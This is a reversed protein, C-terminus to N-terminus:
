LCLLLLSSTSDTFPHIYRPVVNRAFKGNEIAQQRGGLEAIASTIKDEEAQNSDRFEKLSGRLDAEKAELAQFFGQMDEASISILTEDDGDEGAAMSQSLSAAVFSANQSQSQSMQTLDMEYTQAIHEMKNYRERLRKEHAEKEAALKGLHSTLAKEEGRGKEADSELQKYEGELDELQREQESMKSRFNALMEKLEVLSHKETLDSELMSQQKEILAKEKELQKKQENILIDLDYSKELTAGLEQIQAELKSIKEAIDDKMEDVSELAEKQDTLESRFGEAAQKHAGYAALDAKLDKVKSNFEKETERFVKLAKTYKTSDFIDDFRKKLVAGEQLPWSAEEQHCFIVHELIARSVGLLQPVEKDLESCKHSLSVREGTDPDVMRLVGDLQKFTSKTKRQTLEMSRVVVMSQSSRSKFRLKVNAKVTTQGVAKADHVFSNGSRGMGPPFAGTIAYKLSEIITTRRADFSSLHSTTLLPRILYLIM